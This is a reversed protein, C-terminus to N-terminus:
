SYFKESKCLFSIVLSGIKKLFIVKPGVKYTKMDDSKRQILFLEDKPNQKFQLLCLDMSAVNLM